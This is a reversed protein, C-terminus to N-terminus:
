KDPLPINLKINNMLSTFSRWDVTIEVKNKYTHISDITKHIKFENEYYIYTYLSRLLQMFNYEDFEIDELHSHAQDLYYTYNTGRCLALSSFCLSARVSQRRLDNSDELLGLSTREYYYKLIEMAIDDLKESSFTKHNKLLDIYIDKIENNSDYHVPNREFFMSNSIILQKLEEANIIMLSQSVILLLIIKRM